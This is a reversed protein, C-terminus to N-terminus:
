QSASIAAEPGSSRVRYAGPRLTRCPEADAGPVQDTDAAAEQGSGSLGPPESARFALGSRRTDGSPRPYSESWESAVVQSAKSCRADNGLRASRRPPM